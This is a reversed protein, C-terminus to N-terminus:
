KAKFISIAEEDGVIYHDILDIDNAALHAAIRKTSIIDDSSPVLMGSPHNHALIVSKGGIRIVGETITRLSFRASSINGRHIVQKGIYSGDEAFYLAYVTEAEKDKFIEVLYTKLRGGDLMSRDGEIISARRVVEGLLAFLVEAGSKLTKFEKLARPDAAVVGELTGYKEILAEATGRCDKRPVVYFLLMEIIDTDTMNATGSLLVKERLRERHGNASKDKESVPM